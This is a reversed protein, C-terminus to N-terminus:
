CIVRDKSFLTNLYFIFIIVITGEIIEQGTGINEEM